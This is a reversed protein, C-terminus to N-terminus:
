FKRKILQRARGAGGFDCAEESPFFICQVFTLVDLSTLLLSLGKPKRQRKAMSDFPLHICSPVSKQKGLHVMWAIKEEYCKPQCKLINGSFLRRGRLQKLLIQNRLHM